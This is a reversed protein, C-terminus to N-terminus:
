KRCFIVHEMPYELGHRRVDNLHKKIFAPDTKWERLKKTATNFDMKADTEFYEVTINKFGIKHM